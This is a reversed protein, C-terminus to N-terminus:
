KEEEPARSGQDTGGRKRAVWSSPRYTNQLMSRPDQIYGSELGTAKHEVIEFGYHQLLLVVEEDALEFSGAEGIGQNTEFSTRETSKKSGPPPASELHWLLPGLNIWVGGPRLCHRVTEVYAILNPATDVFFCTAVADFCAAYEDGKYLVCFDGASMAMREYAHVEAGLAASAEDLAAGPLVDPVHLCQLQHARHTHNSFGLAWPYLEFQGASRTHNLVWNSAFLQHYSIENGEVDYGACNIEFVLRGLGAGPVLVKVRGRQSPDLHSSSRSLADLIPGFSATREAAGEATWDRYLQRITSRAKDMDSPTATGKWDTNDPPIGYSNLSVDLVADAIDANADIATDVADFTKTLNFPPSALLSM